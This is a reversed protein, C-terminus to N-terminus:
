KKFVNQANESTMRAVEEITTNKITAIKEAIKFLYSCENRKGRFPVPSLYPADTELVLHQLDIKEIVQDLGSNKYTAVGGIGLYFGLDIIMSAEEVSGGFCHFIGTLGRNKNKEVVEITERTANRTHLIIPLRYHVAWDIQQQLTEYQQAIHTRDWYFDLGCEGIACFTRKELYDKVRNLEARYDDKVYCPHLGMMAICHDPFQKELEMMSDHTESNIAPLYMKKVGASCARQIVLEIDSSFEPLYLHCHTDIFM